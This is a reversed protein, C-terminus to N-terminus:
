LKTQELGIDFYHDQTNQVQFCSYLTNLILGFVGAPTKEELGQLDVLVPFVYWDGSKRQKMQKILCHHLAKLFSSKGFRRGGVIMHFHGGPNLLDKAVTQVLPWRGVMQQPAVPTGFNFPNSM